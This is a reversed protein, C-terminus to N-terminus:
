PSLGKRQPPTLCSQLRHQAALIEGYPRAGVAGDDEVTGVGAEQRAPEIGDDPGRTETYLDIAGNCVITM